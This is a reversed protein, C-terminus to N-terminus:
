NEYLSSYEIIDGYESFFAETIVSRDFVPVEVKSTASDDAPRGGSFRWIYDKKAHFYYFMFSFCVTFCLEASACDSFGLYFMSSILLRSVM